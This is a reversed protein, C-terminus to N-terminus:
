RASQGLAKVIAELRQKHMELNIRPDLSRVSELRQQEIPLDRTADDSLALRAAARQFTYELISRAEASGANAVFWAPALTLLATRKMWTPDLRDVTDLNTHIVTLSPVALTIGPIGIGRAEFAVEDTIPEYDWYVTRLSQRGGNAATLLPDPEHEAPAYRDRVFEALNEMLDDAYAPLWVPNRIMVLNNEVNREGGAQDLVVAMLINRADQPHLRFWAEEAVIETTWWFRITRRPKPLKGSAVLRNVTRALELLTGSGSANDNAGPMQHDLHAALVVDHGSEIGPIEGTVMGIAGPTVRRAAAHLAVTVPGRGLLSRLEEGSKPSIMLVVANRPAMGWFIAEPPTRRGFYEGAAASLLAAAGSVNKWAQDPERDTLVVKGRVDARADEALEATIDGDASYQALMAPITQRVPTKVELEAQVADWMPQNRPFREIRVNQLGYERARGAVYEAADFFGQSNPYRAHSAIAATQELSNEVSLESLITRLLSDPILPEGGAALLLATFVLGAAGAAASRAFHRAGVQSVSNRRLRRFAVM